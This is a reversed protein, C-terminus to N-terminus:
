MSKTPSHIELNIMQGLNSFKHFYFRETIEGPLKKGSYNPFLHPCNTSEDFRSSDVGLLRQLNSAESFLIGDVFPFIKGPYLFEKEVKCGTKKIYERSIVHTPRIVNKDLASGDISFHVVQEEIPLVARMFLDIDPSMSGPKFASIGILVYDDKSIQKELYRNKIIEAKNFLNSTYRLATEQCRMNYEGKNLNERWDREMEESARSLVAEIWVDEGKSLKIHFDPGIGRTPMLNFNLNKLWEALELEWLRGFFDENKLKKVFDKDLYENLENKYYAEDVWDRLNKAMTSNRYYEFNEDSGKTDWLTKKDVM